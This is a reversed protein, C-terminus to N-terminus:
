TPFSVPVNWFKYFKAFCWFVSFFCQYLVDFYFFCQQMMRLYEFVDKITTLVNLFWSFCLFVNLCTEYCEDADSSVRLSNLLSKCVGCCGKERRSTFRRVEKRELRELPSGFLRVWLKRLLVGMFCWGFSILHVKTIQWPVVPFFNTWYVECPKKKM